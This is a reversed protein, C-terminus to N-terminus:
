IRVGPRRLSCHLATGLSAAACILTLMMCAYAAKTFFLLPPSLLVHESLRNTRKALFKRFLVYHVGKGKSEPPRLTGM